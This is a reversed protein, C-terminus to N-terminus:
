QAIRATSEIVDTPRGALASFDHTSQRRGGAVADDLDRVSGSRIRQCEQIQARSSRTGGQVQLRADSCDTEGGCGCAGVADKSTISGVVPDIEGGRRASLIGGRRGQDSGRAAQCIVDQGGTAQSKARGALAQIRELDDAGRADRRHAQITDQRDGRATDKEIVRSARYSSGELPQDRAAGLKTGVIAFDDDRGIASAIGRAVQGDTREDTASRARQGLGACPGQDQAASVNIGAVRGDVLARHLKGPRRSGQPRNRRNTIDRGQAM